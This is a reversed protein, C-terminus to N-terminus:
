VRRQGGTRLSHRAGGLRPAHHDVRHGHRHLLPADFGSHDGDRGQPRVETCLRHHHPSLADPPSSIRPSDGVRYAAQTTEPSLGMQMLMPVFIPAMFAWKASASGVLFNMISAVFLFAVLLVGGQLGISELVGAGKVATVAGLKTWNFYAVLQGAIFALVVYAGMSAMTDSMMGAVDKDSTITKTLIGYVLGPIVFGIAM